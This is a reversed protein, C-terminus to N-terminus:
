QNRPFSCPKHGNILHVSTLPGPFGFTSISHSFLISGINLTFSTIWMCTERSYFKSHYHQRFTHGKPWSLFQLHSIQTSILTSKRFEQNDRPEAPSMLRRTEHDGYWRSVNKKCACVWAERIERWSENTDMRSKQHSIICKWRRQAAIRNAM